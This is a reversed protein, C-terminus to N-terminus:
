QHVFQNGSSSLQNGTKRACKWISPFIGSSISANFLETLPSLIEFKLCKIIRNSIGDPGAITSPKLSDICLSVEDEYCHRLDWSPLDNFHQALIEQIAECDASKRLKEVKSRFVSSFERAMASKDSTTSGDINLEKITSTQGKRLLKWVGGRRKQRDSELQFYEREAARLAAVYKNRLRKREEKSQESQYSRRLSALAASNWPRDSLKKLKITNRCSDEHKKLWSTFSLAASNVNELTLPSLICPNQRAVELTDTDFKWTPILTASSKTHQRGFSLGVSHHDSIDARLCFPTVKHRPLRSFVLDLLANSAERTCSEILQSAGSEAAWNLISDRDTNSDLLNTNFDGLLVFQSSAHSGFWGLFDRTKLAREKNTLRHRDTSYANVTFQAYAFGVTLQALQIVVCPTDGNYNIISFDIDDKIYIVIRHPPGTSKIHNYGPLIPASDFKSLDTEILGFIHFGNVLIFDEILNFKPLLGRGINLGGIKMIGWFLLCLSSFCPCLQHRNGFHIQASLLYHLGFIRGTYRRFEIFVKFELQCFINKVVQSSKGFKKELACVYGICGGSANM